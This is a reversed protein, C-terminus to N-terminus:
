KLLELINFDEGRFSNSKPYKKGSFSSIDGTHQVLSPMHVYEKFGKPKMLDIISGDVNCHSKRGSRFKGIWHYDLLITEVAETDFILATASKGTQKSLYWGEVGKALQENRPFTNLNLYGRPPYSVKELYERLGKYTVFDDQFIAYRDAKPERIFLEWLSLFWNGTVGLKPSHRTDVFDFGDYNLGEEDEMKDIFLHPKDFGAKALSALTRPLLTNRRSPVTTVGYSWLM